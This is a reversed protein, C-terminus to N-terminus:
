TGKEQADGSSASRQHEEATTTTATSLSSLSSSAGGGSSRALVKSADATVVSVEEEERSLRRGLQLQLQAAVVADDGDQWTAPRRRQELDATMTAISSTITLLTVFFHVLM